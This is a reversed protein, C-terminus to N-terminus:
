DPNGRWAKYAYAAMIFGLLGILATLVIGFNEGEGFIRNWGVQTANRAMALSNWPTVKFQTGGETESTDLSLTSEGFADGSEKANSHFENIGGRINSDASSFFEDDELDVNASNDEAFQFAFTTLAVVFLAIMVTATTFKIFGM